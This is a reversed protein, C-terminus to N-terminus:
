ENEVENDVDIDDIDVDLSAIMAQNFYNSKFIACACSIFYFLSLFPRFPPLCM